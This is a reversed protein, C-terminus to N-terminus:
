DHNDLLFDALRYCKVGDQWESDIYGCKSCECDEECPEHKITPVLIKHKEAMDQLKFGDIDGVGDQFLENIFAKMAKYNDSVRHIDTSAKSATVVIQVSKSTSM